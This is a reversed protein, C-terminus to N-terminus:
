KQAARSRRAFAVTILGLAVLFGAGFVIGAAEYGTEALGDSTTSTAVPTAAAPTSPVATVPPDTPEPTVVVPCEVEVETVVEVEGTVIYRTGETDEPVEEAQGSDVVVWSFVAPVAPIEPSGPNGAAYGIFDGGITVSSVTTSSAEPHTYLVVVDTVAIDGHAAAFEEITGFSAYGMGAPVNSATNSWLKGGYSPEEEYVLTGAPTQIHLGVYQIPDADIDLGGTLDAITGTWGTSITDTAWGGEVELLGEHPTAPVAPVAPIAPSTEQWEEVNWTQEITTVEETCVEAASAASPAGLLTLAALAVLGLTIKNKMISTYGRQQTRGLTPLPRNNLRSPLEYEPLM